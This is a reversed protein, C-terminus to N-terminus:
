VGLWGMGVTSLFSRLKLRLASPRTSYPEHFAGIVRGNPGFYVEAIGADCCWYKRAWRKSENPDTSKLRDRGVIQQPTITTPRAGFIQVVEAETMGGKVHRIASLDPLFVFWELWLWLLLGTGLL